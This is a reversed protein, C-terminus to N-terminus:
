KDDFVGARAGDFTLWYDKSLDLAPCEANDFLVSSTDIVVNPQSGTTNSTDASQASQPVPAPLLDYTPDAKEDDTDYIEIVHSAYM